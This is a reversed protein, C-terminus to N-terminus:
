ALRCRRRVQKIVPLYCGTEVLREVLRMTRRPIRLSSGLSLAGVRANRNPLLSTMVSPNWAQAYTITTM